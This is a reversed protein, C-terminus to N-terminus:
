SAADQLRIYTVTGYGNESADSFHHLQRFVPDAFSSPGLCRDCQIQKLKPLDDLWIKWTNRDIEALTEDWQIKKSCLERILIKKPKNVNYVPHHPVYWVTGIPAKHEDRPFQEAYGNELLENMTSRYAEM